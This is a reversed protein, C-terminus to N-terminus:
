RGRMLGGFIGRWFASWSTEQTGLAQKEGIAESEANETAPEEPEAQKRRSALSQRYYLGERGGHLYSGRPGTGIRLGKVGASLGFGSKSLNLRIPGIGFSKRLYWGV